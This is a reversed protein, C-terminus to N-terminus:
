RAILERKRAATSSMESHSKPLVILDEAGLRGRPISKVVYGFAVQPTREIPEVHLRSLIKNPGAFHSQNEAVIESLARKSRNIPPVMFIGHIHRGDNISAELLLLKGKKPVPWDPCALLLPMSEIAMKGPKKILRTLLRAYTKETEKEMAHAVSRPSGSLQNFMLTLMHPEFGAYLLREMMEYFADMVHQQGHPM